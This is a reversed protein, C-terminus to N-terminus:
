RYSIVQFDIQLGDSFSCVSVSFNFNQEYWAHTQYEYENPRKPRKEKFLPLATNSGV